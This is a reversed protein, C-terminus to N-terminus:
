FSSAIKYPTLEVILHLMFITNLSLHAVTADKSEFGLIFYM